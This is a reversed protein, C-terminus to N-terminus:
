WPKRPLLKSLIFTVGEERLRDVHQDGQKVGVPFGKLSALDAIGSIDSRFFISTEVTAYPPTFDFFEKRENTDVIEDIVDFEGARALQVAKSWDLGVLEVKIGTEREWLRWQDVLIGELVGDQSRFSYPAYSDDLVVRLKQSPEPGLAALFWSICSLLILLFSHRLLVVVAGSTRRTHRCKRGPLLM